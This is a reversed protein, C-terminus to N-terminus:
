VTIQRSHIPHPEHCMGIETIRARRVFVEDFDTSAYVIRRGEDSGLVPASCLIMYLMM